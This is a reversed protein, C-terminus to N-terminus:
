QQLVGSQARGLVALLVKQLIRSSLHSGHVRVVVEQLYLRVRLKEVSTKNREGLGEKRNKCLFFSGTNLSLYTQLSSPLVCLM